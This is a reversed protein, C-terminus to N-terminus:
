KELDAILSFWHDCIEEYEKYAEDSSPDVHKYKRRIYNSFEEIAIFYNIGNNALKFEEAEEPLTFELIAKPMVGRKYFLYLM